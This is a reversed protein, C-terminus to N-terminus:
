KTKPSGLTPGVVLDWSKGHESTVQIVIVTPKTIPIPLSMHLQHVEKDEPSTWTVQPKGDYRIEVSDMPRGFSILDFGRVVNGNVFIDPQLTGAFATGTSISTIPGGYNVGWHLPPPGEIPTPVTTCGLVLLLVLVIIRM